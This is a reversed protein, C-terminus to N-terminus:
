RRRLGCLSDLSHIRVAFVNWRRLQLVVFGGTLVHRRRLGCLSDFSHIRVAFVHRRPLQQLCFRGHSVQVEGCRM